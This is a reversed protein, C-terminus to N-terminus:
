AAIAKSISESEYTKCLRRLDGVEVPGVAVSVAGVALSAAVAQFAAAVEAAAGVEEQHSVEAASSGVVRIDLDAAGELAQREVPYRFLFSFSSLLPLCYFGGPIKQASNVASVRSNAPEKTSAELRRWLPRSVPM